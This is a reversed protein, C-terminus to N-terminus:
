MTFWKYMWFKYGDNKDSRFQRIYQSNNNGTIDNPYHFYTIIQLELTNSNFNYVNLTEMKNETMYNWVDNPFSANIGITSSSDKESISNEGLFEEINEYTYDCNACDMRVGRAVYSNQAIYYHNDGSAEETYPRIGNDYDFEIHSFTLDDFKHVENGTNDPKDFVLSVVQNYKNTLKVKNNDWDNPDEQFIANPDYDTEYGIDSTLFMDVVETLPMHHYEQVIVDCVQIYFDDWNSNYVKPDCEYTGAALVPTDDEAIAAPEVDDIEYEGEEGYEDAYDKIAENFEEETEANFVAEEAEERKEAETKGCGATISSVILLFSIVYCIRTKM